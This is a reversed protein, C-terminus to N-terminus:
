EPPRVLRPKEGNKSVCWAAGEEGIWCIGQNSRTLSRASTTPLNGLWCKVQDDAMRACALDEQVAVDMASGVNPVLETLWPGDLPYSDGIRYLNTATSFYGPSMLHVADQPMQRWVLGEAFQTSCLVPGGVDRVCTHESPAFILEAVLTGGDIRDLEEVYPEIRTILRVLTQEGTLVALDYSRGLRGSQSEGWTGVLAKSTSPKFLQAKADSTAVRSAGQADFCIIEAGQLVCADNRVCDFDTPEKIGPLFRTAHTNRQMLFVRGDVTLGCDGKLRAVGICPPAGFRDIGGDCDNDVGDCVEEGNPSVTANDDDCDLSNDVTGEPPNDASSEVREIALGFGDGDDDKYYIHIPPDPEPPAGGSGGHAKPLTPDSSSGCAVSLFLCWGLLASGGLGCRSAIVPVLTCATRDVQALRLRAASLRKWGGM